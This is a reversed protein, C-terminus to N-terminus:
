YYDLRPAHVQAAQQFNLTCLHHKGPHSPILSPRQSTSPAEAM